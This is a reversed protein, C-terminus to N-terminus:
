ARAAAREARMGIPGSVGLAIVLALMMAALWAGGAEFFMMQTLYWPQPRALHFQAAVRQFDIEFLGALHVPITWALMVACAPVGLALARLREAAGRYPWALLLSFLLIAPVLDHGAHIGKHMPVWSAVLYDGAIVVPQVAELTIIVGSDGAPDAGIRAIFGPLIAEVGDQILPRAAVLASVGFALVALTAASGAAALRAIFGTLALGHM